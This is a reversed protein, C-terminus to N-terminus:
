CMNFLSYPSKGNRIGEIDKKLWKMNRSVAMEYVRQQIEEPPEKGRKDCRHYGMISNSSALYYVYYEPNCGKSSLYDFADQSIKQDFSTNLIPIGINDLDLLYYFDRWGCVLIASQVYYMLSKSQIGPRAIVIHLLKMRGMCAYRYAYKGINIYPLTHFIRFNEMNDFRTINDLMCRLIGPINYEQIKRAISTIMNNRYTVLTDHWEKCILILPLPDGLYDLVLHLVINM